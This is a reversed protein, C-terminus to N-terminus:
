KVEESRCVLVNGVIIDEPGYDKQFLKTAAWNVPLGELKGEENLVIIRGDKLSVVEIHGGVIQQLQELKYDSGNQPSVKESGGNAYYITGEVVPKSM